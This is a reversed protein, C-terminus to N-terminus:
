DKKPTIVCKCNPHMAKKLAEHKGECYAKKLRIEIDDMMIFAIAIVSILLAITFLVVDQVRLQSAIHGFILGLLIGLLVGIFTKKIKTKKM